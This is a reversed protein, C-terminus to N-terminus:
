TEPVPDARNPPDGELLRPRSVNGSSDRDPRHEYIHVARDNGSAAVPDEIVGDSPVDASRPEGM